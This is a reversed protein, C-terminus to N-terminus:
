RGSSFWNALKGTSFIKSLVFGGVVYTVIVIVSGIVNTTMFRGQLNTSVTPAVAFLNYLFFAAFSAIMLFWFCLRRKRPDKPNAGGEFKIAQAITAALLLFIAGVIAGAVYTQLTLEDLERPTRVTFVAFMTTMM